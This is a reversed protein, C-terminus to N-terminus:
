LFKLSESVRAKNDDLFQRLRIKLVDGVKYFVHYVEDTMLSEINIASMINDNEDLFDKLIKSWVNGRKYAAEVEKDDQSSGFVNAMCFLYGDQRADEEQENGMGLEKRLECLLLYEYMKCITEKTPVM